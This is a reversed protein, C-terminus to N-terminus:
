SRAGAAIGADAPRARSSLVRRRLAAAQPRRGHGEAPGAHAESRRQGALGGQDHGYELRRGAGVLYGTKGTVRDVDLSGGRPRWRAPKQPHPPEGHALRRAMPDGDATCPPPPVWCDPSSWSGTGSASATPTLWKASKM